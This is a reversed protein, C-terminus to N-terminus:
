FRSRLGLFYARDSTGYGNVTQYQADFLNEIRLYAEAQAGVAYTFVTDVTTYDDGDNVGFISASDTVDAVRRLVTSNSFGAGLEADLQLALDHRPVRPVPLGNAQVARTNTYAATLSVREGLPLAAALEYGSFTSVGPVNDNTANTTCSFFADRVCDQYAIFNDVELRFATASLTAGNAYEHDVGLEFSVSKEPELDPNGFFEFGSDLPFNGFLESLVPARFGTAVAGRLTTAGTARWSFALRGTTVDGFSSNDEYRASAFLDLTDSPAFIAEAFIGTTEISRTGGTLGTFTGEEKQWDAGLSLTTNSITETTGVYRVKDRTGDFVSSFPSGFPDAVTVSALSRDVSLHTYALDHTWSPGVYEAFLRYGALDSTSTEDGVTGDGPAFSVFEDFEAESTEVFANAGITLEPTVEYIVGFSLRSTESGDAETNGNNEDAASFGDTQSHSLGFSLTLPGKRHTYSYDASLTGYSGAEFSASQSIGEPEDGTAVTSISIVGAVANSGYLASQSGRLVEVRRLSGTTLSNFGNFQGSTSTPDNVPIGDVVVAVFGAGAGRLRVTTNTGPPGNRTVSVGPLTALYDALPVEGAARLDEETVVDVSVGTRGAEIATLSGSLVLTGLDFDDQATASLPACGALLALLSCTSRNM